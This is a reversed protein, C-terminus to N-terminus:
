VLSEFNLAQHLVITVVRKKFLLNCYNQVLGEFHLLIIFLVGQCHAPWRRPGARSSSGETQDRGVTTRRSVAGNHSRKRLWVWVRPGEQVSFHNTSSYLFHIQQFINVLPKFSIFNLILQRAKVTDCFLCSIKKKQWYM